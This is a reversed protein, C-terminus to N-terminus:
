IGMIKEYVASALQVDLVASGSLDAITIQEPSTRGARNGLIIQGLELMSDAGIVGAKLAHYTEGRQKSDRASEVVLRQAKQLLTPEFEQKDSDDSGVATIHTGPRVDDALLLPETSATASVILNCTQTIERIDLAKAVVFGEYSVALRFADQSNGSRGWVLIERCSTVTQLYLLQQKAQKGTGVIGIREVRKPALYKAAVAGTVAARCHRLNGNDQLLALPEGTRQSFVLSSDSNTGFSNEARLVYYDDRKLYGYSLRTTGKPFILDPANPTVADGRSYAALGEEVLYTLKLRALTKDIEPSYILKM